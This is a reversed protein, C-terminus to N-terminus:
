PTLTLTLAFSNFSIGRYFEWSADLAEPPTRERSAIFGARTDFFGGTAEAEGVDDFEDPNLDFYDM